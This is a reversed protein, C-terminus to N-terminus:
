DMVNASSWSAINEGTAPTLIQSNHELYNYVAQITATQGDLILRMPSSGSVRKAETNAIILADLRM